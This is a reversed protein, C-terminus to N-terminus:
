AESVVSFARNVERISTHIDATGRIKVQVLLRSIAGTRITPVYPLSISMCATINLADM